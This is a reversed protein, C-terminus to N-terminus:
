DAATPWWVPCRTCEQTPPRGPLGSPPQWRTASLPATSSSRRSTSRRSITVSTRSGPTSARTPPTPSAAAAVNFSAQVAQQSIREPMLKDTNYFGDFFDAFYAYRDKAIAAKIQEFVEGDVGEPNDPTKLLFPPVVGFLSAKRVRASGYRGLYRTVEGTGMSFGALVVEDLGLHDLLANL